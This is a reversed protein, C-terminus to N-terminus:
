NNLWCIHIYLAIKWLKGKRFVKKLLLMLNVLLSCICAICYKELSIRCNLCRCSVWIDIYKILSIAISYM